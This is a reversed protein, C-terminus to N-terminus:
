NNTQPRMIQENKADHGNNSSNKVHPGDEAEKNNNTKPRNYYWVFIGWIIAFIQSNVILLKLSQYSSAVEQVRTEERLWEVM